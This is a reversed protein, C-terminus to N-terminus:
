LQVILLVAIPNAALPAPLIGINVGIFLPVAGIVAVTVTVGENLLPPVGQAPVGFVNVM